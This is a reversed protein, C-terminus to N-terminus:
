RETAAGSEGVDPMTPMQAACSGCIGNRTIPKRNGIHCNCQRVINSCYRCDVRFHYDGCRDDDDIMLRERRWRRWAYINIGAFVVSSLINALSFIALGYVLWLANAGLRIAWGTESKRALLLNAWVNTIFGLIGVAEVVFESLIM